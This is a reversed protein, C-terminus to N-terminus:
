ATKEMPASIDASLAVNLEAQVNRLLKKTVTISDPVKKMSETYRNFLQELSQQADVPVQGARVQKRINQRFQEIDLRLVSFTNRVEDQIKMKSPVQLTSHLLSLVSSLSAITIWIAKGHDSSWLAWGAIASGSATATVFISTTTDIYHWKNSLKKSSLEQLAAKYLLEFTDNWFQTVDSRQGTGVQAM